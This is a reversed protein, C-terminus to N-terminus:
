NAPFVAPLANYFNTTANEFSHVAFPKTKFTINGNKTNDQTFIFNEPYTKLDNILCRTSNYTIDLTGVASYIFFDDATYGLNEVAANLNGGLDTGFHLTYPNQLGGCNPIYYYFLDLNSAFMNWTIAAGMSYGGFARHKRSAILDGESVSKAFTSYKSEVAPVLCTRVETAYNQYMESLETMDTESRPKNYFNACVAIIPKIKGNAIMNDLMNSFRPKPKKPTGFFKTQTANAGGQFYIIDYQKNEDYEPPLYVIATKETTETKYRVSELSGHKKATEFYEDPVAEIANELSFNRNSVFETGRSKPLPTIPRVIVIAAVPILVLLAIVATIAKLAKKLKQHKDPM